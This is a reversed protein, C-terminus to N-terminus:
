SSHTEPSATSVVKLITRSLLDHDVPLRPDMEMAEDAAFGADTIPWTLYARAAQLSLRCFERERTVLPDARGHVYSMVAVQTCLISHVPNLAVKCRWHRMQM